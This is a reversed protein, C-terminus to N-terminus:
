LIGISGFHQIFILVFV